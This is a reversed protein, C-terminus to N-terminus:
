FMNSIKKITEANTKKWSRYKIMKKIRINFYFFIEILKHNSIKNLRNTVQYHILQDHITLLVFILNIIIKNEHFDCTIMDTFIILVLNSQKVHKLLDTTMRHKKNIQNNKWSKYHFNFDNMLIHKNSQNLIKQFYHILFSNNIHNYSESSLFYINTINFKFNEQQIILMTLNKVIFKVNWHHFSIKKNILFCIKVHKKKLYISWFNCSWSCHIVIM